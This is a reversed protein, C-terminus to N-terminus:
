TWDKPQRHTLETRRCSGYDWSVLVFVIVGYTGPSALDRIVTPAAFFYHLRMM